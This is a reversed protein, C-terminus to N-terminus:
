RYTFRFGHQPLFVSMRLIIPPTAKAAAPTLRPISAPQAAPDAPAGAAVPCGIGPMDIGAGLAEFLVAGTAVFETDIFPNANTGTTIVTLAPVVTVHVFASWSGCVTVEIGGPLWSCEGVKFV